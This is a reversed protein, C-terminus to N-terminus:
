LASYDYGSGPFDNDHCCREYYISLLAASCQRALMIGRSYHGHFFALFSNNGESLLRQLHFINSRRRCGALCPLDRPCVHCVKM